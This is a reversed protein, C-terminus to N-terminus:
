AKWLHEYSRNRYTALNCRVRRFCREVMMEPAPLVRRISSCIYQVSRGRGFRAWEESSPRAKLLMGYCKEQAEWPQAECEAFAAAAM